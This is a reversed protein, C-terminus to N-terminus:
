RHLEVTFTASVIIAIHLLCSVPCQSNLTISAKQRHSRGLKQKNSVEM